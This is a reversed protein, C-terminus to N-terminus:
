LLAQQWDLELQASSKFFAKRKKACAPGNLALSLRTKYLKLLRQSLAPAQEPNIMSYSYKHSGSLLGILGGMKQRAAACSNNSRKLETKISRLRKFVLLARLPAKSSPDLRFTFSRANNNTNPDCLEAAASAKVKVELLGNSNPSGGTLRILPAETNSKAKGLASPISSITSLQNSFTASGTPANLSYLLGTVSQPGYNSIQLQIRRRAGVPLATPDSSMFINIDSKPSAICNLSVSDIQASAPSLSAPSVFRWRIYLTSLGSGSFQELPVQLQSLAPITSWRQIELWNSSGAPLLELILTADNLPNDLYASFNLTLTSMCGADFDLSQLASDVALNSQASICGANGQASALNSTVACQSLEGWVVGSQVLDINVFNHEIHEEFDLVEGGCELGHAFAKSACLLLSIVLAKFLGPM